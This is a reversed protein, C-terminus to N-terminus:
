CLHAAQAYRSCHEYYTDIYNSSKVCMCVNHRCVSYM